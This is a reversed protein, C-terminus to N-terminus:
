LGSSFNYGHMVQVVGYKQHKMKLQYCLIKDELPCWYIEAQGSSELTLLSRRQWKSWIPTGTDETKAATDTANEVADRKPQSFLEATPRDLAQLAKRKGLELLLGAILCLGSLGRDTGFGRERDYADWIGWLVTQAARCGLHAELALHLPCRFADSSCVPVFSVLLVKAEGQSHPKTDNSLSFCCLITNERPKKNKSRWREQVCAGIERWVCSGDWQLWCSEEPAELLAHM